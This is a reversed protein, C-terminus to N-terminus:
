EDWRSGYKAAVNSARIELTGGKGVPEVATMIIPIRNQWKDYM